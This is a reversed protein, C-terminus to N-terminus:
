YSFNLQVRNLSILKRFKELIEDVTVKRADVAFEGLGLMEMTGKMKMKYYENEYLSITPVKNMLSFVASHFSVAFVM